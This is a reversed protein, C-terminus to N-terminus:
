TSTAAPKEAFFDLNDKPAQNPQMTGFSAMNFDLGGSGAGSMTAFANPSIDKSFDIAPAKQEFVQPQPQPNSPAMNAYNSTQFLNQITSFDSENPAGVSSSTPVPAPPNTQGLSM